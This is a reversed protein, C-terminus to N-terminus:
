QQSASQNDALMERETEAEVDAEVEVANEDRALRFMSSPVEWSGLVATRQGAVLLSSAKKEKVM